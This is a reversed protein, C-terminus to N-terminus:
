IAKVARVGIILPFSEDNKTLEKQSLEEYAMGTISAVCTLVNGYSKVTTNEHGFSAAFLRSCSLATFRWYEGSEDPDIRSVSPVTVLLVGGPRLLRHATDIAASTDYIYQLTQTLIFCDFAMSPLGDSACLDAILSAEKNSSDIDLVDSQTVATGYRKTYLADRVELTRGVIDQRYSALFSEIYYRDVPTGRDYGWIDSLPSTRRLTGLLAPRGIRRLMPRIKKVSMRHMPQDAEGLGNPTSATSHDRGISFAYVIKHM